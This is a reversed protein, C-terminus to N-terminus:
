NPKASGIVTTPAAPSKVDWKFSYSVQPAEHSGTYQEGFIAEYATKFEDTKRFERFIPWDSYAEAPVQGGKGIRNMYSLAVQFDDKLTLTLGFCTQRTSDAVRTSVGNHAM